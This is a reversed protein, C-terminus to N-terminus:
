AASAAGCLVLAPGDPAAALLDAGAGGLEPETADLM